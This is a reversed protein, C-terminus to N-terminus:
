NGVIWSTAEELNNFIQDAKSFDQKISYENPIAICSLGASKASVVGFATDEIAVLQNPRLGLRKAGLLYGDPYPKGNEVDNVSVTAQFSKGFGTKELKLDVEERLGGSVLGLRFGKSLLMDIAEKAYHMLRVEKNKVFSLMINEKPKLLTGQDVGLKHTEILEKEIFTGTNGAYKSIYDDKSMGIGYPKLVEIWGQWQFGETDVLVGDMDFIVGDFM